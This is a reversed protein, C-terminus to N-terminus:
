HTSTERGLKSYVGPFFFYLSKLYLNNHYSGLLWFLIFLATSWYQARITGTCDMFLEGCDGKEEQLHFNMLIVLQTGMHHLGVIGFPWPNDQRQLRAPWLDFSSKPRARTGSACPGLRLMPGCLANPRHLQRLPQAPLYELGMRINLRLIGEM